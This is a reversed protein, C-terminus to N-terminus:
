LYLGHAMSANRDSKPLLPSAKTPESEPSVLNRSRDGVPAVHNRTQGPEYQIGSTRCAPSAQSPRGYGIFVPSLLPVDPRVLREYGMSALAPRVQPHGPFVCM